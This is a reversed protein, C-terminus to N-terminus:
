IITRASQTFRRGYEFQKESDDQGSRALRTLRNPVLDFIVKGPTSDKAM